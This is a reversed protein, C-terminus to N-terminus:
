KEYLSLEFKIKELVHVKDTDNNVILDAREYFKQRDEYLKKLIAIKSENKNLLPRKKSSKLRNVLNNLRVQLYISYSNQKISKRIEKNTVSGGGLSIVCNKKNLLKICIKEELNRFYLEGYEKFIENISKKSQLEIEKDTDYYEFNLYRSLDKGIVSKGSGMLGMICINKRKIKILDYM